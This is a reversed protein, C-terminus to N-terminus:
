KKGRGLEYPQLLTDVPIDTVDSITRVINFVVRQNDLPHTGNQPAQDLATYASTQTAGFIHYAGKDLSATSM